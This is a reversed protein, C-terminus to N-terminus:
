EEVRLWEGSSACTLEWLKAIEQFEVRWGHNPAVLEYRRKSHDIQPLRLDKSFFELGLGKLDFRELLSLFSLVFQWGRRVKM